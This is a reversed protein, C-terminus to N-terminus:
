RDAGGLDVGLKRAIVGFVGRERSQMEAEEAPTGHDYGLLHLMGHVVLFGIEAQLSWEVRGGLEECVRDRHEGSAAMRAATEVSVVVDGIASGTIAADPAELLAFSLVDTAEDLGRWTANLERIEADGTLVVAGDGECGLADCISTLATRLVRRQAPSVMPRVEPRVILEM